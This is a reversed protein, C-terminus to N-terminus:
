NTFHKFKKLSQGPTDKLYTKRLTDTGDQGAGSKPLIDKKINASEDISKKKVIGSLSIGRNAFMSALKQDHGAHPEKAHLASLRKVEDKEEQPITKDSMYRFFEAIGIPKYGPVDTIELLIGSGTLNTLMQICEVMTVLKKHDVGKYKKSVEFAHHHIDVNREKNKRKKDIIDQLEKAAQLYSGRMLFRSLSELIPFDSKYRESDETVLKWKNNVKQLM